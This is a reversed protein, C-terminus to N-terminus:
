IDITAYKANPTSITSNIHCKITAIGATPTAIDVAYDIVDGGVTWRVRKTEVKEPRNVCVIRVYTAKKISTKKTM